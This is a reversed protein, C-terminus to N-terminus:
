PAEEEKIRPVLFYGDEAAPANALAEKQTLGPAAQDQRLVNHVSVAHSTPPVDGIELATVRRAHELIRSLQHRLLEM